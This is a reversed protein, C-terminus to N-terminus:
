HSKTCASSFNRADNIMPCFTHIYAHTYTHSFVPSFWMKEKWHFLELILEDGLIYPSIFQANKGVINLSFLLSSQVFPYCYGGGGGCYCCYCSPGPGGGGGGGGIMGSRCHSFFLFVMVLCKITGEKYLLWAYIYNTLWM